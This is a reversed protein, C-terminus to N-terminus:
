FKNFEELDAKTEAAEKQFQRLTIEVRNRGKHEAIKHPQRDLNKAQPDKFENQHKFESLAKLKNFELPSKNAYKQVIEKSDVMIAKDRNM